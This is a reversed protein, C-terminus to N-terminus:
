IKKTRFNYIKTFLEKTSFSIATAILVLITGYWSFSSTTEGLIANALFAAFIFRCFTIPAILSISTKTLATILLVKNLLMLGSIVIIYLTETLTIPSWHHISFPVLLPIAIIYTYFGQSIWSDTTTQKKTIIDHVAWLVASLFALSIGIPENSFVPNIAISMGVLGISLAILKKTTMKENLFYIALCVSAIPTISSVSTALSISIQKTAYIWTLIAIINSLSRVTHQKNPIFNSPIHTRYACVIFILSVLSTLLIIQFISVHPLLKKILVSILSIMFVNIIKLLIGQTDSSLTM